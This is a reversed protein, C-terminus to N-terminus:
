ALDLAQRWDVANRERVGAWSVIICNLRMVDVHRMVSPDLTGVQSANHPNQMRRRRTGATHCVLIDTAAFEGARIKIKDVNGM